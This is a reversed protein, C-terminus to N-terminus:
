KFKSFLVLLILLILVAIIAYSIFKNAVLRRSMTKITQMSKDIYSDAQFLTQRANELTERQSRLDRMIQSGINETETAIRTAETLRDGSKTLTAHNKLLQQRQEDDMYQLSGNNELNNENGNGGFLMDRDREDMLKQLPQKVDNVIFKQYDRLKSKLRARDQSNSGTITNNIEIDMQDILDLLEDQEEEIEKLTANRQPLQQNKAERLNSRAKELTLKFESEYSSLLSSM